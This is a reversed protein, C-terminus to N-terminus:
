ARLRAVKERAATAAQELLPSLARLTLKAQSIEDLPAEVVPHKLLYMTRAGAATM